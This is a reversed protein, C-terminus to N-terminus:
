VFSVNGSVTVRTVKSNFHPVHHRLRSPFMLLTGVEPKVIRHTRVGRSDEGYIFVTHGAPDGNSTRKEKLMKQPVTLFLVFSLDCRTHVHIPNYEKSKQFNVWMQTLKYKPDYDPNESFKRFGDIWTNIYIKFEEEIWPHKGLDYVYEHQIQGALSAHHSVTSKKGAKLLRKCFDLDVKMKALYPGFPIHHHEPLINM